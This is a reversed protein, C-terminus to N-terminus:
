ELGSVFQAEELELLRDAKAEGLRRAANTYPSDPALYIGFTEHFLEMFTQVVGKSRGFFWLRDEGLHYVMEFLKITPLSQRMMEAQLDEKVRNIEAKPISDRGEELCMKKVRRALHLKLQSAPVSVSDVRMTIGVMHEGYYIAPNTFETSFPDNLLVWGFAQQKGSEPDLSQFRNRIVEDLVKDWNDVKGVVHFGLPSLRGNLAGM